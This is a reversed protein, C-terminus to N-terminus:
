VDDFRTRFSGQLQGSTDGTVNNGLTVLYLAGQDIDGIAGTGAANFVVPLNKLNMFFDANVAERGTAPTGVNGLLVEDVRKLIRFRGENQTNNMARSSISELIDTIGPLSAQPRKDYVILFACDNFTASVKNNLSGRFQLSRYTAKKGIRENISAGQAITALLTISGTTSCEYAASALDVYGSERVGARMQRRGRVSAGYYYGSRVMPPRSTTRGRKQM